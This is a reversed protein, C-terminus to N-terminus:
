HYTPSGNLLRLIARGLASDPKSSIKYPYCLKGVRRAAIAAAVEADRAPAVAEHFRSKRMRILETRRRPPRCLHAAVGAGGALSKTGQLGSKICQYASRKVSMSVSLTSSPATSRSRLMGFAHASPKIMRCADNAPSEPARPASGAGMRSGALIPVYRALPPWLAQIHLSCSM